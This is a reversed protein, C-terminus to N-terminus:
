DLFFHIEMSCSCQRKVMSNAIGVTTAYNCHVPNKPQVHGMDILISCFIIGTQCNHFLAGLEAKAVSAVIFWIVNMSVHLSGNIRIPTNDQPMWGMFFHGCTWSCANGKSLYSADSHINMIMNSAYFCVKADTHYALYDLLQTCKAKIKNTSKTQDITITSLAILVKM